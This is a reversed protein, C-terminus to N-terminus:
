GNFFGKSALFLTMLILPGIGFFFLVLKANRPNIDDNSAELKESLIKRAKAKPRKKEM